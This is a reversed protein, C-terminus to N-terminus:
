RIRDTKTILLFGITNDPDNFVQLDAIENGPLAAALGHIEAQSRYILTWDMFAEMYGSDAIRTLFNPILLMGGPRTADFMRRTLAAAVPANLYDYLGAAYVFDYQGLAAKGALIQRVSGPRATVGLRAYHRSVVALSAEDQDFAVFEAFRRSQAAKSLEVERLHGAAIALVRPDDSQAARDLLSAILMRRFRVARASPRNGMYRFIARGLPTAAHAAQGAEGLGYIYDMMVADGAYGRPKSFARYTFPDAHLLQRVPHNACHRAFGTWSERDEERRASLDDFLNDLAQPIRGAKLEDEVQDLLTAEFCPSIPSQNIYTAIQM